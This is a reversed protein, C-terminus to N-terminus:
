AQGGTEGYAYEAQGSGGHCACLAARTGDEPKSRSAGGDSGTTFRAGVPFRYDVRVATVFQTSEPESLVRHSQFTVALDNVLAQMNWDGHTATSFDIKETGVILARRSGAFGGRTM